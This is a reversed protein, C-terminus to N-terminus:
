KRSVFTKRNFGQFRHTRPTLLKRTHASHYSRLTWLGTLRENARDGKPFKSRIEEPREAKAAGEQWESVALLWAKLGVVRVSRGKWQERWSTLGSGSSCCKLPWFFLKRQWVSAWQGRGDRSTASYTLSTARVRYAAVSTTHFTSGHPASRVERRVITNLGKFGSNFGM